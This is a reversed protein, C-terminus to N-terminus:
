NIVLATDSDTQGTTANLATRTVYISAAGRRSADINNSTIATDNTNIFNQENPDQTSSM